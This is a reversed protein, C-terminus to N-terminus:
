NKFDITAVYSELEGLNEGGILVVQNGNSKGALFPPIGCMDVDNQLIKVDSNQNLQYSYTTTLDNLVHELVDSENKDLISNDYYYVVISGNRFNGNTSPQYYECASGLSGNQPAISYNEGLPLEISFLNDFTQNMYPEDTAFALSSIAFVAFVAVAFMLFIKKSMTYDISILM